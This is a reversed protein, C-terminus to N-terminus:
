KVLVKIPRPNQDTVVVFAGYPLLVCFGDEIQPYSIILRGYLDYIRANTHTESCAFRLGNPINVVALSATQHLDNIGANPNVNIVNSLGSKMGLRVSQVTYSYTAGEKVNDLYFSTTNGDAMIVNDTKVGGNYESLNIQYADVVEPRAPKEWNIRFGKATVESADTAVMMDFEPFDVSNATLNVTYSTIDTLGGDFLLLTAEHHGTVTPIYKVILKYGDANVSKWPIQTVDLKFFNRDTGSIIVSLDKTIRGKILIEKRAIQTVINDGFDVTSNNVPLDLSGDGTPPVEGDSYYAVGMKNGWIYEVLEPTDIFPNRNKQLKYVEENRDLEKKSVPDQRHWQLLLDIAWGQLTPYAGNRAMYTYKWTLNQYCTVMYFYTRAFDGKYEDAPEFVTTSGGGQGSVPRGVKVLGNNYSNDNPDVVGLPHNSKKMNAPGDSPYLHNLDTYAPNKDGGWWSKPFSHERNMGSWSVSGNVYVSRKITSYMDWWTGDPRVDTHIFSQRFLGNYDNTRHNRVIEFLRNKLARDTLGDLGEYYGTPVAAFLSVHLFAVLTALLTIKIKKMFLRKIEGKSLSHM